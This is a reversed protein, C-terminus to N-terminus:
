RFARCGGLAAKKMGWFRFGWLTDLAQPKRAGIGQVCLSCAMGFSLRMVKFISPTVMSTMLTVASWNRLIKFHVPPMAMRSNSTHRKGSMMTARVFYDAKLKEDMLGGRNARAPKKIAPAAIAVETTKGRTWNKAFLPRGSIPPRM